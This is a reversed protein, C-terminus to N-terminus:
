PQGRASTSVYDEVAQKLRDVDIGLVTLVLVGRGKDMKILGLLLHETGIYHNGLRQAEERGYQMAKKVDDTFMSKTDTKVDDNFAFMSKTDTGRTKMLALDGVQITPGQCVMVAREIVHQLERVNGPWARGVLAEEAAASLGEVKKDLRAAPRSIFHLALLPIDEQRKRLPPLQVEFGQLRFYLGERFTGAEIMQHLTRNTAAVVRVEATLLDTGGVREFTREDLLHLIKAQSVMPMDGIEDLFLTGGQALEVKGLRRSTAGTFAGREHGFLECEM